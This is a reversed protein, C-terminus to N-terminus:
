PLSPQSMQNPHPKSAVSNRQELAPPSSSSQMLSYKLDAWCNISCSQQSTSSFRHVAAGQCRTRGQGSIAVLKLPSCLWTLAATCGISNCTPQTQTENTQLEEGKEGYSQVCSCAVGSVATEPDASQQEEGKTLHFGTSFRDESSSAYHFHTGLAHCCSFFVTCHQLVISHHM